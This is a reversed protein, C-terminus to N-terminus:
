IGFTTLPTILESQAEGVDTFDMQAQVGTSVDASNRGDWMPKAASKLESEEKRLDSELSISNSLQPM